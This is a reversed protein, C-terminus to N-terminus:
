DELRRAANVRDPLIVGATNMSREGFAGMTKFIRGVTFRRSNEVAAADPFGEAAIGKAFGSVPSVCVLEYCSIRQESLSLLADYAM